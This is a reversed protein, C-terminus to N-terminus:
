TRTSGQESPGAPALTTLRVFATIGDAIAEVVSFVIQWTASPLALKVIGHTAHYGAVAVPIVFALAVLLELWM